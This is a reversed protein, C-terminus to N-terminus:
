EWKANKRTITAVLDCASIFGWSGSNFDLCVSCKFDQIFYILYNCYICIALFEIIFQSLKAIVFLAEQQVLGNSVFKSVNNVQARTSSLHGQTAVFKPINWYACLAVWDIEDCPEHKLHSALLTSM